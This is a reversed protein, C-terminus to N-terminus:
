EDYNCMNLFTDWKMWVFDKHKELDDTRRFITILACVVRERGRKKLFLGTYKKENKRKTLLCKHNNIILCLRFCNSMM